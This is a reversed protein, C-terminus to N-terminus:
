EKPKFGDDLDLKLEGLGEPASPLEFSPADDASGFGQGSKFQANSKRVEQLAVKLNEDDPSQELQELLLQEAHEHRGYAAYIMAESIVDEFESLEAAPISNRSWGDLVDHFSEPDYNRTKEFISAKVRADDSSVNKGAVDKNVAGEDSSPVDFLEDPLSFEFEGDLNDLVSDTGVDGELTAPPIQPKNGLEDDLLPFLDNPDIEALPTQSPESQDEPIEEFMEDITNASLEIDLSESGRTNKEDLVGFSESEDSNNNDDQAFQDAEGLSGAEDQDANKQKAEHAALGEEIAHLSTALPTLMPKRIEEKVRWAGLEPDWVRPLSADDKNQEFLNLKDNLWDFLQRRRAIFLFGLFGLVGVFLSLWVTAGISWESSPAKSAPTSIATTTSMSSSTSTPAAALQGQDGSGGLNDNQEVNANLPAEAASITGEKSSDGQVSLHAELLALDASEMGASEGIPATEDVNLDAAVLTKDQAPLIGAEIVTSDDLQQALMAERLNQIQRTQLDLLRELLALQESQEIREIRQRISQNERNVKDVLEAVADIQSLIEKASSDETADTQDPNSQTSLTLRAEASPDTQAREVGTDQNLSVSETVASQDGSVAERSIDNSDTAVVRTLARARGHPPVQLSAGLQLQNIDGNAFAEPNHAFLLQMMDELKVAPDRRLRQAVQSLTDGSQIQYSDLPQVPPLTSSPVLSDGLAASSSAGAQQYRGGISDDSGVSDRNLPLQEAPSAVAAARASSNVLGRAAQAIGRKGDWRPMSAFDEPSPLTLLAGGQMRNINGDAFAGPNLRFIADVVATLKIQEDPRIKQAIQSLTDGGGVRWSDTSVQSQASLSPSIARYNANGNVTMKGPSQDTSPESDASSGEIAKSGLTSASPPNVDIPALDLLLNYDRYLKGNPWELEVLVSVFPEAMIRKSRVLLFLQNDREVVKLFYGISDAALDFGLQEALRGRVQRVLIENLDYQSNGDLIPIEALLPEGIQSKVQAAGLGLSLASPVQVVLSLSIAAALLKHKGKVRKVVKRRGEIDIGLDRSLFNM